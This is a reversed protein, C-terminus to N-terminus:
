NWVRWMDCKILFFWCYFFLLSFLYGRFINFRNSNQGFRPRHERHNWVSCTCKNHSGYSVINFTKKKRKPKIWCIIIFYEINIRIFLCIEKRKIDTRNFSHTPHSLSHSKITEHSYYPKFFQHGIVFWNMLFIVM